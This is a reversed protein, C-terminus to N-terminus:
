ALPLLERVMAVSPAESYPLLSGDARDQWISERHSMESLRQGSLRGYKAVVNELLSVEDPTLSSFPISQKRARILEGTHTESEKTELSIVGTGDMLAFLVRFRDPAPGFPLRAHALGTISEGRARFNAFDAVWLLKALKTQYLGQVRSAFFLIVEATRTFDFARFGREAPNRKYALVEENEYARILATGRQDLWLRFLRSGIRQRVADSLRDKNKEYQAYVFSPDDRMQRLICDHAEDQLAGHEYRQTTVLGWGLLRSLSRHSLGYRERVERIEDSSLLVHRKRYAENASKLTEDGLTTDLIESGCNRCRAIRSQVQIPEGRVVITEPRVLYEVDRDSLCDPCFMKM